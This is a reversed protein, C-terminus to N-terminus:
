AFARRVFELAERAGRDLACASVDPALNRWVRIQSGVTGGQAVFPEMVVAKDYGIDRLARGIKNWPLSGKGPLQRNGEGIHLHALKEGALRIAECMDDEEINMHFTDLMVKVNPMNVDSIFELCEACTNILYGEYRNLVELGLTVGRQEAHKAVERINVVARKRDSAKDIPRSYDAPWSCYLGGGIFRVDMIELKRFTEIFFEKANRATQADPSCLNQSRTPGYGSTVLLGKEKAYERLATLQWDATYTKRFAACSIEMVDFGLGALRDMFTIYDAYWERTWYAFYIGYKM